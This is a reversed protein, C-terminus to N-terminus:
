AYIAERQRGHLGVRLLDLSGVFGRGNPLPLGNTLNRFEVYLDLVSAPMTWGLSLFCGVEASAFYAVLLADGGVDFPPQSPPSDTLWCRVLRSTRLEWAVLCVPRAPEGPLAQFEFDVFWVARYESLKPHTM